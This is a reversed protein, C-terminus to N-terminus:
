SVESADLIGELTKLRVVSSRVFLHQNGKTFYSDREKSRLISQKRHDKLELLQNIGVKQEKNQTRNYIFFVPDYSDIRFVTQTPQALDPPKVSNTTRLGREGRWNADDLAM